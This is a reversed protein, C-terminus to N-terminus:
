AVTKDKITTPVIHSVRHYVHYSFDNEGEWVYCADEEITVQYPITRFFAMETVRKQCRSQEKDGTVFVMVDAIM